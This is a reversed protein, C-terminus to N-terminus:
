HFCFLNRARGHSLLRWMRVRGAIVRDGPGCGSDPTPPRLRKVANRDQSRWRPGQNWSGQCRWLLLRTEQVALGGRWPHLSLTGLALPSMGHQQLHIKASCRSAHKRELDLYLLVYYLYEQHLLWRYYCWEAVIHIRVSPKPFQPLQGVITALLM